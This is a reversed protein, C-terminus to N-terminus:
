IKIFYYQSVICSCVFQYILSVQLEVIGQVVFTLQQVDNDDIEALLTHTDSNVAGIDPMLMVAVTYKVTNTGDLPQNLNRLNETYVANDFVKSDNSITSRRSFSIDGGSCTLKSGYEVPSM